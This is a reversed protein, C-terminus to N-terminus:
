IPLSDEQHKEFVFEDFSTKNLAGTEIRKRCYEAGLGLIKKNSYSALCDQGNKPESNKNYRKRKKREGSSLVNLKRAKNEMVKKMHKDFANEDENEKMTDIFEDLEALEKEWITKQPEFHALKLYSKDKWEQWKKNFSKYFMEIM